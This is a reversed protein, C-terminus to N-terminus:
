FGEEELDQAEDLFFAVTKGERAYTGLFESLVQEALVSQGGESTLGLNESLFNLLEASTLTSYYSSIVHVTPDEELVGILRRLVTTKGTGVEGTLMMLGVRERIGQLLKEYAEEYVPNSYFLRSTPTLSFPEDHFGFYSTYM